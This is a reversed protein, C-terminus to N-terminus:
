KFCKLKYHKRKNCFYCERKNKQKKSRKKNSIESKNAVDDTISDNKIKQKILKLREKIHILTLNKMNKLHYKIMIYAENDILNILILAINLDTSAKMSRIDRIIIQLRFLNSCVDDISKTTETKYNFFKKKFFNLKKQDFADHVKKLAKWMAHATILKKIHNYQSNKLNM